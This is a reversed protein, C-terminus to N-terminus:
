RRRVALRILGFTAVLAWSLEMMFAALNFKEALSLMVLGSGVLNMLLAALKAPDLWHTQAAAYACLMLAVGVLGALDFLSM